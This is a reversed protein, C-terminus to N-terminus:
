GRTFGEKRTIMRRSVPPVDTVSVPVATADEIGFEEANELMDREIHLTVEDHDPVGEHDENVTLKLLYYRTESM